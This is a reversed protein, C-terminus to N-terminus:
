ISNESIRRKAELDSLKKKQQQRNRENYNKRLEEAGDLYDRVRYFYHNFKNIANKM